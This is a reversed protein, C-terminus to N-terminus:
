DRLQYITIETINGGAVTFTLMYNGDGPNYFNIFEDKLVEVSPALKYKKRYRTNATLNYFVKQYGMYENDSDRYMHGTVSIQNESVSYEDVGYNGDVESLEFTYTGNNLDTSSKNSQTNIWKGTADVKYGDPTTTSVLMAGDSGLYYDGVWQNAVMYGDGNFYYWKADVDQFWANAYYGVGYIEYWWGVNNRRWTGDSSGAYASIGMASVTAAFSMAVLLKKM